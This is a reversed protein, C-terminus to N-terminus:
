TYPTNKYVRNGEKYVVTKSAAPTTTAYSFQHLHGSHYYFVEADVEMMQLREAQADFLQFYM